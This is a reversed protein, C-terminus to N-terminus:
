DHYRTRGFYDGVKPSAPDIRTGPDAARLRKRANIDCYLLLVDCSLRDEEEILNLEALAEDFRGLKFFRTAAELQQKTSVM